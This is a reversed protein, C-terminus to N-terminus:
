SFTKVTGRSANIEVKMGDKLVETANKTGVICPIELERTVIAAHSTVGGMDTVIAAAKKMVPTMEPNTSDSILIEGEQILSYSESDTSLIVRCVGTVKGLSAPLGKVLYDGGNDKDYYAM